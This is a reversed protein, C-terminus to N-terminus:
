NIEFNIFNYTVDIGLWFYVNFIINRVNYVFFLKYIILLLQLFTTYNINESRSQLNIFNVYFSFNYM